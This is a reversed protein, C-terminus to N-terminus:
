QHDMWTKDYKILNNGNKTIDLAKYPTTRNFDCLTIPKDSPAWGGNFIRKVDSLEMYKQFVGCLHIEGKFYQRHGVPCTDLPNSCGIWAWSSTYDILENNFEQIEEIDNVIIKFKKTTLNISFAINMYDECMKEYADLPIFIQECEAEADPISSKTWCMAKLIRHGDETKAITIGLHKGNKVMIGAEDTDTGYQLFDWDVKIRALFTFDNLHLNKSDVKSLGYKSTPPVFWADRGSFIM